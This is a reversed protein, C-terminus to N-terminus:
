PRPVTFCDHGDRKLRTCFQNAAEPTEFAGVRLRFWVAGDDTDLRSVSQEAYAFLDPFSEKLSFWIECISHEHPTAHIQVYYDGGPEPRPVPDTPPSAPPIPLAPPAPPTPSPPTPMSGPAPIPVPLPLPIPLPAPTPVPLPIPIIIGGGGDGDDPDNTNGGNNNRGETPSDDSNDGSMGDDGRNPNGDDERTDPTDNPPTDRDDDTPPQDDQDPLPPDAPTPPTDPTTPLPIPVPLPVLTDNDRTNTNQHDSPQDGTDPDSTNPANPTEPGAGETQAPPTQNLTDPAQPDGHISHQATPFPAPSPRASLLTQSHPTPSDPETSLHPRQPTHDQGNWVILASTAACGLLILLPLRRKRRRKGKNRQGNEKAAKPPHAIM